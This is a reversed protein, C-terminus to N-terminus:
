STTEECANMAAAIEDRAEDSLHDGDLLPIQRLTPVGDESTRKTALLLKRRPDDPDAMNSGFTVYPHERTQGRMLAWVIMKSQLYDAALDNIEEMMRTHTKASM